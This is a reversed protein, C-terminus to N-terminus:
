FTMHLQRVPDSPKEEPLRTDAAPAAPAQAAEVQSGYTVFYPVSVFLVGGVMNGLSVPLLNSLLFASPTVNAGNLMGFPIIFCNAISHEFGISVFASIPLFVAISKSVLDHTFYSMYVAMCVLWNCLVGRVFLTLFPKEVKKEALKFFGHDEPLMDAATIMLALSVAGLFNASYVVVWNQLLRKFEAKGDLVAMSCVAFNSTILEAGTVIVMFLGFPYGYAGAVLRQLGKNEDALGALDMGVTGSLMAGFGVHAGALLGLVFLKEPKKKCKAKGAQVAASFGGNATAATAVDIRVASTKEAVLLSERRPIESERTQTTM